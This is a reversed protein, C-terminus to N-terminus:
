SAGQTCLGQIETVCMGCWWRFRIQNNMQNELIRGPCHFSWTGLFELVSGQSFPPALSVMFPNPNPSLLPSPGSDSSWSVSTWPVPSSLRLILHHPGDRFLLFRSGRFPQALTLPGPCSWIESHSSSQHRLLSCSLTWRCPWMEM